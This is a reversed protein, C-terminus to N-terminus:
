SNAQSNSFERHMRIDVSTDIVMFIDVDVTLDCEGVLWATGGRNEYTLSLSFEVSATILDLVNLDGGARLYGGLDLEDGTMNFLFGGFVYLDGSAVGFDLAAEAGFELAGSIDFASVGLLPSFSFDLYGGGGFITYTMLFHQNPDAFGFLVQIARGTFDLAVGSNLSLNSLTFAGTEISPLSFDYALSIGTSTQQVSLNLPLDISQALGTVFNLPGIFQVADKDLSCNVVPSSGNTSTFSASNFGVSLFPFEPILLLSFNNVTASIVLNPSPPNTSLGPVNVTMSTHLSLNAPRGAKSAVFISFDSLSTDYDYSARVQELSQLTQLFTTLTSGATGAASILTGYFSNLTKLAALFPGSDFVAASLVIDQQMTNQITQLETNIAQAASSLAPQSGAYTVLAKFDSLLQTVDTNVNNCQQVVPAVLKSIDSPNSPIPNTLNTLLSALQQLSSVLGLPDAIGNTITTQIASVSTQVSTYISTVNALVVQFTTKFDELDQSLKALDAQLTTVYQQASQDALQLSSLDASFATFIQIVELTAAPLPSADQAQLAANLLYDRMRNLTVFANQSAITTTSQVRAALSSKLQSQLSAVVNAGVLGQLYNADSAANVYQPNAALQEYVFAQVYAVQPAIGNFLGQLASNLPQSNLTAVLASLQQTVTALDQPLQGLEQSVLKPVAAINQLINEVPDIIESLDVAGLLQATQGFVNVANFAGTAIDQISALSENINTTATTFVNGVSRSLAAVRSTPQFLGGGLKAYFNLPQPADLSTLLIEGVNPPPVGARQNATVAHIPSDFPNGTYLTSYRFKQSNSAGTQSFAATTSLTIAASAMQPAWPVLPFQVSSMPAATWNMAGTPFAANGPKSSTAYSVNDGKFNPVLQNSVGTGSNYDTLLNQIYNPCNYARIEAAVIMSMSSQHTVGDRDTCIVPFSFPLPNNPDYNPPQLVTGWYPKTAVDDCSNCDSEFVSADAAFLTPTERLPIEIRTFPFPYGQSSSWYTSQDYICVKEAFVIKYRKILPGHLMNSADRCWQRETTVVLSGKHGTPILVIPYSVEEHDEIGGAINLSFGNLFAHGTTPCNLPNLRTQGKIWSGAASVVLHNVPLPSAATIQSAIEQRNSDSLAFETQVGQNEYGAAIVNLNSSALRATWLRYIDGTHTSYTDQDTDKFPGAPRKKPTAFSSGVTPSLIVGAPVELATFTEAGEAPMQGNCLHLRYKQWDLLFDLDVIKQEDNQTLIELSIRSEKPLFAKAQPNDIGTIVTSCVDVNPATSSPFVQEVITQPPLTVIMLSPSDSQGKKIYVNGNAIWHDVNALEFRLDLFDAPRFVRFLVSGSVVANGGSMKISSHRSAKKTRQRTASGGIQIPWSDDTHEPIIIAERLRGHVSADPTFSGSTADLETEVRLAPGSPPDNFRLTLRGSKLSAPKALSALTLSSKGHAFQTAYVLNRLYFTPSRGDTGALPEDPILQAPSRSVDRTATVAYRKTRRTSEHAEIELRDFFSSEDRSSYSWGDSPPHLSWPASGRSALIDTRRSAGGRLVSEGKAMVHLALRECDLELKSYVVKACRPGSFTLVGSSGFSVLGPNLLLSLDSRGIVIHRRTLSGTLGDGDLWDRIFGRVSLELPQFSILAQPGFAGTWIECTFDAPLSTGPFRADRIGFALQSASESSWIKPNGHFRDSEIRFKEIGAQRLSLWGEGTALSLANAHEFVELTAAGAALSAASGKMFSRRSM